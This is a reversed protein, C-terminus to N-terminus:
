RGIRPFYLLSADPAAAVFTCTVHQGAAAHAVAEGGHGSGPTCSGHMTYDAQAAISLDYAGLELGGVGHSGGAAPLVFDGKPGSVTWGEAPPTGLVVVAVKVDARLDATYIGNDTPLYLRGTATPDLVLAVPIKDKPLEAPFPYWQDGGDVSTYLQGNAIAYLVGARRSDVAWPLVNLGSEVPLGRQNLTSWSGGGNTSRYIQIGSSYPGIARKLYLTTPSQPDVLLYTEDLYDPLGNTIEVWSRAGDTSKYVYDTYIHVVDSKAVIYLTTPTQPDIDFSHILATDRHPDWPLGDNAFAWSQGRDESRMVGLSGYIYLNAPMQPDIVLSTAAGIPLGVGFPQWGDGGDESAFLGNETTTIYLRGPTQPDLVIEDVRGALQATYGPAWSQGSDQSRFVGAGQIGAYLNDPDHPDVAFATITASNPAGFPAYAWTDGGDTSRYALNYDYACLYLTQPTQGDGIIRLDHSTFPPVPLQDWTDGGDASRYLHHSTEYPLSVTVFLTQPAAPDIVLSLIAGNPLGEQAIPQWSVAADVSKYISQGTFAYLTTPTKPDPVLTHVSIYKGDTDGPDDTYVFPLGTNASQWTEGADVSKFIGQSFVNLYLTNPTQPDIYPTGSTFEDVVLSPFSPLGEGSRVWTNGGDISKFLGEDSAASVVTYLTTPTQPDVALAMTHLNDSGLLSPLNNRITQWTDGGDTSKLLNPSDDVIYLTNPDSPDVVFLSIYSIIIQPGDANTFEIAQWTLGNDTSKLIGSQTVVYLTTPTQPDVILYRYVGLSPPGLPTWDNVAAQAPLPALLLSAVLLVFVHARVLTRRM